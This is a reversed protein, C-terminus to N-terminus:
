SRRVISVFNSLVKMGLASSKEPHFQVGFVNDSAVASTFETGHTTTAVVVSSDTPNCQYSHTFYFHSHDPVGHMLECDRAYDVTNWGVHPIKVKQGEPTFADLKGSYGRLIGLGESHGDGGEEGYDFLLHLGLCIGLFPVGRKISERVADMLGTQLMTDSADAFAGVGPLVLAESRSVEDPDSTIVAVGGVSELGKQVSRLNGKCYDIVAIAM